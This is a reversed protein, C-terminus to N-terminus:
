RDFGCRPASSSNPTAQSTEAPARDSPRCCAGIEETPVSPSANLRMQSQSVRLKRIPNVDPHALAVDRFTNDDLALRGSELRPWAIAHAELLAAWRDAKFTTGEYIGYGADVAHVLRERIEQWRARLISLKEVDIPIGTSEMRAVAKMYHGRVLARPLDLGRVMSPLLRELAVVDTECYDLLEGREDQTWPGGRIALQRMSDKEIADLGPLGFHALAGLLGSGCQTAPWQDIAFSRSCTSCTRQCHGTWRWIAPCRLLPTTPWSCCM